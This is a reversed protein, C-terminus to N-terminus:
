QDSLLDLRVVLHVRYAALTHHGCQRRVRCELLRFRIVYQSINPLRREQLQRLTRRRLPLRGGGVMDHRQLPLDVMINVCDVMRAALLVM